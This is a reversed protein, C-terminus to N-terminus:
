RAHPLYDREFFVALKLQAPKVAQEVAALGDARLAAQRDPPITAPLYKLPALLPSAAAPHEAALKLIPLASSSTSQPHVFGTAVGRELNHMQQDFYVPLARLRAIWAVADADSRIVTTEAAYNGVNFFGDGNDFPIRAEDFRAAELRMNLRWELLRRTLAD